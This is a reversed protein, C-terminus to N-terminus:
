IEIRLSVGLIATHLVLLPHRQSGGGVGSSMGPVTFEAARRGWYRRDELRKSICM